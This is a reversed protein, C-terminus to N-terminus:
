NESAGQGKWEIEPGECVLLTCEPGIFEDVCDVRIGNTSQSGFVSAAQRASDSASVLATEIDTKDDVTGIAGGPEDPKRYFWRNM